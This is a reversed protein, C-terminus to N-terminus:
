TRLLDLLICVTSIKSHNIVASLCQPLAIDMLWNGESFNRSGRLFKQFSCTPWLGSWHLVSLDETIELFPPLPLPNGPLEETVSGPAKFLLHQLCLCVLPLKEFFFRSWVWTDSFLMFASTWMPHSARVKGLCPWCVFLLLREHIHIGPPSDHWRFSLGGCGRHWAFLVFFSEGM